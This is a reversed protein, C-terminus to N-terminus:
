GPWKLIERPQRPIRLSEAILRDYGFLHPAHEEGANHGGQKIRSFRKIKRTSPAL